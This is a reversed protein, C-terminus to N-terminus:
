ASMQTEQRLELGPDTTTFRYVVSANWAPQTTSATANTNAM